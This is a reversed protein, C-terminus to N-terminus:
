ELIQNMWIDHGIEGCKECKIRRRRQDALKLSPCDEIGHDLARCHQCIMDQYIEKRIGNESESQPITEKKWPCEEATHGESECCICIKIDKQEQSM